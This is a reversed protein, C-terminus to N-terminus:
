DQAPSFGGSHKRFQKETISYGTGFRGTNTAKHKSPLYPMCIPMMPRGLLVLVVIKLARVWLWTSVAAKLESCISVWVAVTRTGSGRTSWKLVINLGRL